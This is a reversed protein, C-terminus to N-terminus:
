CAVRLNQFLLSNKLTFGDGGSSFCSPLMTDSQKGWLDILYVERCLRFTRLSKETLLIRTFGTSKRSTKSLIGEHCSRVLLHGQWNKQPSIQTEGLSVPIGTLYFDMFKFSHHICSLTHIGPPELSCAKTLLSITHSPCPTHLPICLISHADGDSVFTMGAGPLSHSLQGSELGWIGNGYGWKWLM